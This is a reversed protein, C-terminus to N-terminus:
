GGGEVCLAVLFVLAMTSLLGIFLWALGSM